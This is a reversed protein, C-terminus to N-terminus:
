RDWCKPKWVEAQAWEHYNDDCVLWILIGIVGVWSLMAMLFSRILDRVILKKLSYMSVNIWLFFTVIYGSFYILEYNM